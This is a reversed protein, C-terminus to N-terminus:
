GLFSKYNGAYLQEGFFYNFINKKEQTFLFFSVAQLAEIYSTSWQANVNCM